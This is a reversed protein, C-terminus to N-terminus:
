HYFDRGSFLALMKYLDSIGNEKTKPGPHHRHISVENKLRTGVVVDREPGRSPAVDVDVPLVNLLQGAQYPTPTTSPIGQIVSVCSKDSVLEFSM